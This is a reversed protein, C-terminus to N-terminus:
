EFREYLQRGWGGGRHAATLCVRDVYAFHKHRDCFWIYNPSRYPAQEELGIQFGVVAGDVEVVEFQAAWRAFEDLKDRDMPGVEPVCEANLKLVEEADDTQYQRLM